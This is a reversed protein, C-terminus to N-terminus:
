RMSTERQDAAMAAHAEAMAFEIACGLSVRGFRRSSQMADRLQKLRDVVDRSARISKWEQPQNAQM